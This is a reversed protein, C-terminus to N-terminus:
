VAVPGPYGLVAWSEEGSFYSLCVMDHLGQYAQIRLATGSTRMAQLAAAVEETTATEWRTSLGVLWRRGPASVLLSLLQDLEALVHAPLSALLADVRGLVAETGAKLRLPEAPLTGLLLAQGIKAMAIRAPHSLKGDILGQKMLVAAGGAVVLVVASALGLKLLSRRNPTPIAM